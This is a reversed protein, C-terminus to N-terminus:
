NKQGVKASKLFTANPRQLVGAAARLLRPAPAFRERDLADDSEAFRQSIYCPRHQAVAGCRVLMPDEVRM